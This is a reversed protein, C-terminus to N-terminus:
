GRGRWGLPSGASGQVGSLRYPGEWAQAGLSEAPVPPLLVSGESSLRSVTSTGRRTKQRPQLGIMTCVRAFSHLGTSEHTSPGVWRQEPESATSHTPVARRSRPLPPLPPPSRRHPRARLNVWVVM